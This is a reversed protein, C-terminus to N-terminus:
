PVRLPPSMYIHANQMSEEAASLVVPRLRGRCRRGVNHVGPCAEEELCRGSKCLPQHHYQLGDWIGPLAMTHDPARESSVKPQQRCEVRVGCIRCCKGGSGPSSCAQAGHSRGLSLGWLDSESECGLFKGDERELARLRQPFDGQFRRFLM